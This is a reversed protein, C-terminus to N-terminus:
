GKCLRRMAFASPRVPPRGFLDYTLVIAPVFIQIPCGKLTQLRVIARM